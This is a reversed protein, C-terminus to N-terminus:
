RAVIRINDIDMWPEGECHDMNGFGLVRIGGRAGIVNFEGGFTGKLQDDIYLKLEGDRDGVRRNVHMDCRVRHWRGPQFYQGRDLHAAFEGPRGGGPTNRYATVNWHGFEGWAGFDLRTQGDTTLADRGEDYPNHSQLMWFHKGGQIMEGSADREYRWGVPLRISYEARLDFVGSYRPLFSIRWDSHPSYDMRGFKNGSQSQVTLNTEINRGLWGQFPHAGDFNEEYLVSGAPPPPSPPPDDPPPPPPPDDDDPPQPNDPPNGNDPDDPLNTTDENLASILNELCGSGSLTFLLLLSSMLIKTRNM